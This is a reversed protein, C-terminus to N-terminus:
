GSRWPGARVWGWWSGRCGPEELLGRDQGCAYKRRTCAHGEKKKGRPWQLYQQLSGRQARPKMEM